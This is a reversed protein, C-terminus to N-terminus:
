SEGFSVHKYGRTSCLAQAITGKGTGHAGFLVVVHCRRSLPGHMLQANIEAAISEVSRAEAMAKPSGGEPKPSHGGGAASSSKSSSGWPSSRPAPARSSVLQKPNLKPESSAEHLPITDPVSATASPTAAPRCGYLGRQHIFELVSPHVARPDPQQGSALM